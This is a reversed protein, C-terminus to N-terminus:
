APMNGLMAHSSCAGNVPAVHFKGGRRPIVVFEPRSELFSRLTGLHASFTDKWDPMSVVGVGEVQQMVERVALKALCKRTVDLEFNASQDVVAVTYKRSGMSSNVIFKGPQAALFDRLPGLLGRYEKSWHPLSLRGDGGQGLLQSIIERTAREAAEAVCADLPRAPRAERAPSKAEERTWVFSPKRTGTEAAYWEVRHDNVVVQAGKMFFAKGTGWWVLGLEKDFSLEVMAVGQTDFCVCSWRLTEPFLLTYTEGQEGLWTGSMAKMVASAPLPESTLSEHQRWPTRQPYISSTSGSGSEGSGRKPTTMGSGETSSTDSTSGSGRRPKHCERVSPTHYTPATLSRPLPVEQPAPAGKCPGRIPSHMLAPPLRSGDRYIEGSRWDCEADATLM